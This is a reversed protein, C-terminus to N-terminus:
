PLVEIFYVLGDSPTWDGQGGYQNPDDNCQHMEQDNGYLYSGM